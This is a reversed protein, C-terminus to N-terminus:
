HANTWADKVMKETTLINSEVTNMIDAFVTQWKSIIETTLKERLRTVCNRAEKCFELLPDNEKLENYIEVVM